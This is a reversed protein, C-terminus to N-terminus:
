GHEVEQLYEYLYLQKRLEQLDTMELGKQIWDKMMPDIELCSLLDNKHESTIEQHEYLVKIHGLLTNQQLNRHECLQQLDLGQEILAKTELYTKSLKKAKDKPAVENNEENVLLAPKLEQCLSLFIEGYKEFLVEGIGNIRLMEEKNQPLKASIHQLTKDGFVMYAPIQKEQAIQTRLAKFQLLQEDDVTLKEPTEDKIEQGLKDSDMWVEKQQKLVEFGLSSIKLARFEGLSLAEMDILRDAIAIWESKAKDKGLGYVSLHDHGFELLKQNKSGRLIDIIHNMGFRQESRYVASLFKQADISMNVQEVDQKTCNDCLTECPEIQDDFYQAIMKHRCKNSVCYRYMQELKDLSQQKYTADSVEEIQIKRKVEDSKAYLMYVSSDLGDRGARGIEQYYGEMTKPMSTHIVFRINSKDIGMGFAITAVVIDIDEYVFDHFIGNKIEPKLGAHYAKAKYQREQLFSAIQEAEKRTFTYIIGSQNKHHQLINVVQNRGNTIRPQVQIHLNDRVTKSRFQQKPQLGLNSIIDAEVVKTATATFAAIPINPFQEKLRSLNRYESRFEHGWASVCHAEDIVFYNINLTHLLQMFSTTAFREPAVYLFQCKNNKLQSLVNQNEEESQSSNIMLANIGLEKLALVQDQMLAILPSIVVTLEGLILNPLQYCLSKGGGTPLITLVDEKACIADVVEEQFNRFREHGFVSNLLQYKKEM